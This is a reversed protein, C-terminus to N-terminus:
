CLGGPRRGKIALPCPRPGHDRRWREDREWHCQAGALPAKTCVCKMLSVNETMLESM